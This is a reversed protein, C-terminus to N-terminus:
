SERWTSFGDRVSYVVIVFGALPASWWWGAAANLVLGLLVAGTLFPDVLTV